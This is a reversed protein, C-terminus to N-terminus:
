RPPQQRQAPRTARPEARELHARRALVPEFLVFRKSRRSLVGAARAITTPSLVASPVPAPRAAFEM